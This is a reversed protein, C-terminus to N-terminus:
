RTQAGRDGNLRRFFLSRAEEAPPRAAAELQERIRLLYGALEPSREVERDLELEALVCRDASAEWMACDRGTCSERRGLAAHMRCLELKAEYTDTETM